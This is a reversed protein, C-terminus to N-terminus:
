KLIAAALSCCVCYFLLLTKQLKGKKVYDGIAKIEAREM